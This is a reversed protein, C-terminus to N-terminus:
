ALARYKFTLLGAPSHVFCTDLEKHRETELFKAIETYFIEFTIISLVRSLRLFFFLFFFYSFDRDTSSEDGNRLSGQSSGGRYSHLLSHPNGTGLIEGAM